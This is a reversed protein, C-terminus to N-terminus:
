LFTPAIKVTRFLLRLQGQKAYSNHDVALLTLTYALRTFAFIRKDAYTRVTEAQLACFHVSFLRANLLKTSHCTALLNVRVCLHGSVCRQRASKPSLVASKTSFMLGNPFQHNNQTSSVSHRVNVPSTDLLHIQTCGCEHRIFFLRATGNTKSQKPM